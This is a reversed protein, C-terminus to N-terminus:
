GYAFITSNFGDLVDNINDKVFDFLENQKSYQNFVRDYQSEILHQGDAIRIGQAFQFHNTLYVNM